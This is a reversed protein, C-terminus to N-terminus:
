SILKPDVYKLLGAEKYYKLAGKHIPASLGKLMNEKTL